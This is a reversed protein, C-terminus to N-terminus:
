CQQNVLLLTSEIIISQYLDDFRFVNLTDVHVYLLQMDYLRLMDGGGGGGGLLCFASTYRAQM